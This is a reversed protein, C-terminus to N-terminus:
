TRLHNMAFNEKEDNNKFQAKVSSRNKENKYILMDEINHDVKDCGESEEHDELRIGVTYKM